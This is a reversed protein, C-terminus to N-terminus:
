FRLIWLSIDEKVSIGIKKRIRYIRSEVSRVTANTYIAIDKVNFGLKLLACVNLEATNLSPFKLTFRYYFDSHGRKFAELFQENNSKASEVLESLTNQNLANINSLLQKEDALLRTKIAISSKERKKSKYIYIVRLTLMLAFVVLITFGLIWKFKTSKDLNDKKILVGQVAKITSNKQAKQLSDSLFLYKQYYLEEKDRDGLKKYVHFLNLYADLRIESKKIREALAISEDLYKIGESFDGQEIKVRGLNLYTYLRATSYNKQEVLNFAANLYTSAPNYQKMELFCYGINVNALSLYVIKTKHEKIKDFYNHSLIFYKLVIDLQRGSKYYCMALDKYVLGLQIFAADSDTIMNTFDLCKQFEIEGQEFLGLGIFSIGNLRYIESLSEYDDHKFAINEVKFNQELALDYQHTAVLAKSILVSSVIMGNDYGIKESLGYCEKGKFLVTLPISDEMQHIDRLLSDIQIMKSTQGLSINFVFLFFLTLFYQWKNM